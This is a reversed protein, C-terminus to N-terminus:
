YYSMLCIDFKYQFSIIVHSCIDFFDDDMRAYKVCVIYEAHSQSADKIRFTFNVPYEFYGVANIYVGYGVGDDSINAITNEIVMVTLEGDALIAARLSCEPEHPSMVSGCKALAICGPTDNVIRKHTMYVSM